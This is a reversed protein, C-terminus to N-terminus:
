ECKNIKEIFAEKDKTAKTTEETKKSNVMSIHYLKIDEESLSTPAKSMIDRGENSKPFAIVDKISSCNCIISIFRDLGLAIGGHPPCGSELADLLHQMHDHPIKLIDDLVMRQLEANHIRISGGAIENGNLVLDYAQSRISELGEKNELKGLDDPHPATFPHHASEYGGEKTKFFMPFDVVWIFKSPLKSRANCIGLNELINRYTVRVRGM